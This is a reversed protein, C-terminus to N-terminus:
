EIATTKAQKNFALEMNNTHPQTSHYRRKLTSFMLAWLHQLDRDGGGM